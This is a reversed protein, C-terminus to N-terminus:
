DFTVWELIEEKSEVALLGGSTFSSLADQQKLIEFKEKALSNNGLMIQSVGICFHQTNRFRKLNSQYLSDYLKVGKLPNLETQTIREANQLNKNSLSITQNFYKTALDVKGLREALLGCYFVQSTNFPLNTEKLTGKQYYYFAVNILSDQQKEYEADSVQFLLNNARKFFFASKTSDNENLTEIKVISDIYNSYIEEESFSNAKSSPNESQANCSHMIVTISLLILPFYKRSM